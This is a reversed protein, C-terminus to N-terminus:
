SLFIVRKAHKPLPLNMEIRVREVAELLMKPPKRTHEWNNNRLHHRVLYAEPYPAPIEPMGLRSAPPRM